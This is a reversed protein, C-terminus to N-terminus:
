EGMGGDTDMEAGDEAEAEPATVQAVVDEPLTDVTAYQSLQLARIYAAIAWRDEPLVRSAYSFMVGNSSGETIVQYIYGLPATRLEDTHYTAPQPFGELAIVGEGSGDLGHCPSCFQEYRRQGTVLLAENLEVTAPLEDALEGDVTGFNFHEDAREFGVPVAEPLIERAASGFNPSSEYTDLRAQEEMNACGALVVLAVLVLLPKLAPFVRNNRANM